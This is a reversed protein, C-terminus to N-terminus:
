VRVSYPLEICRTWFNKWSNLAAVTWPLNFLWIDYFVLSAISNLNPSFSVCKWVTKKQLHQVRNNRHFATIYLFPQLHWITAKPDNCLRDSVAGRNWHRLPINPTPIWVIREGERWYYFCSPPESNLKIIYKQLKSLCNFFYFYIVVKKM